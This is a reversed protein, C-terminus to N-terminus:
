ALKDISNLVSVPVPQYDRAALRMLLEELAKLPQEVRRQLVYMATSGGLPLVVLLIVSMRLETKADRTVDLLLRNHREREGALIHRVQALAEFLIELPDLRPEALQKALQEAILVQRL